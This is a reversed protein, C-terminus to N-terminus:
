ECVILVLTVVPQGVPEVRIDLSPDFRQAVQAVGFGDDTNWEVILVVRKWIDDLGDALSEGL